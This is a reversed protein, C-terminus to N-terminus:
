KSPKKPMAYKKGAKMPLVKLARERAETQKAVAAKYDADLERKEKALLYLKNTLSEIDARLRKKKDFAFLGASELEKESSTKDANAKETAAKNKECANNYNSKLTAITNEHNQEIDNTEAAIFEERAKTVVAVEKEYAEMAIRLREAEERKRAEEREKKIRAEEQEKIKWEEAVSLCETALDASDLYDKIESFAKAAKKLATSTKAASKDSKATLYAKHKDLDDLSVGYKQAEMKRVEEASVKDWKRKINKVSEPTEISITNNGTIEFSMEPIYSIWENLQKLLKKFLDADVGKDLFSQLNKDFDNIYNEIEENTELITEKVEELYEKAADMNSEFSLTVGISGGGSNSSSISPRFGSKVLSMFKDPVEDTFSEWRRKLFRLKTESKELYDQATLNTSM